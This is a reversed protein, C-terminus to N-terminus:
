RISDITYIASYNTLCILYYFYKRSRAGGVNFKIARRTLISGCTATVLNILNQYELLLILGKGVSYTIAGGVINVLNCNNFMTSSALQPFFAWSNTVM